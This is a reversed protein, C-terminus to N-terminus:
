GADKQIFRLQGTSSPESRSPDALLRRVPRLDRAGRRIRGAAGARVRPNARAHPVQEGVRPQRGSRDPETRGAQRDRGSHRSSIRCRHLLGGRFGTMSGPRHCKQENALIHEVVELSFGGRFVALWRFLAQCEADLLGYSWVITERMTRQRDSYDLPGATLVQLQNNLRVLLEQPTLVNVRAAALELALPLGDLRRCIEGIAPANDVTLTFAPWGARAREVFLAGAGSDLIAAATPERASDPVDLPPVSYVREGAIHFPARSTVM